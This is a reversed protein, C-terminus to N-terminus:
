CMATRKGGDCLSGYSDPLVTLPLKLAPLIAATTFAKAVLGTDWTGDSLLSSSVGVLHGRVEAHMNYRINIGGGVCVSICRYDDCYCSQMTERIGTKICFINEHEAQSKNESLLQTSDSM